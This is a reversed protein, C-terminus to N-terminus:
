QTMRTLRKVKPLIDPFGAAAYDTKMYLDGTGGLSYRDAVMAFYKSNQNIQGNGGINLARSPQYVIGELKLCGGGTVNTAITPKNVRSDVFLFGAYTGSTPAKHLPLM